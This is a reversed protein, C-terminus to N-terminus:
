LLTQSVRGVVSKTETASCWMEYAEVIAQAFAPSYNAAAKASAGHLHGDHQHDGRCTHTLLALASQNALGNAEQNPTQECRPLQM